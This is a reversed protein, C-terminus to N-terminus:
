PSPSGSSTRPPRSGADAPASSASRALTGTLASTQAASTACVPPLGSANVSSGATSDAAVLAAIDRAALRHLAFPARYSRRRYIASYRSIEADQAPEPGAAVVRAVLDPRERDPFLSVTTEWGLVHVAFELNALAAGCSILRDRGTPDHRPLRSEFREYLDAGDPRVEVTWPMTNHVSPAKAVARALVGVETASWTM